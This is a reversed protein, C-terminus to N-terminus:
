PCIMAAESESIEFEPYPVFDRIKQRIREYRPETNHGDTNRDWYSVAADASLGCFQRLLKAAILGSAHWGNWCHLYVPGRRQDKISEYVSLLVDYSDEKNSPSRQLYTLTNSYGGGARCAVQGPASDFNTSYLYFSRSFGEECLNMLGDDPLPNMNDRRGSRHWKNNAGGRYAVGKLVRRFNRTGYLAEFGEGHNDTAKEFIDELGYRQEFYERGNADTEGTTTKGASQAAALGPAVLLSALLGFLIRM